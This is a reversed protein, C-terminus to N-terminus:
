QLYPCKPNDKTSSSTHKIQIVIIMYKEKRILTPLDCRYFSRQCLRVIISKLYPIFNELFVEFVLKDKIGIM